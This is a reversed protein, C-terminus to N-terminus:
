GGALMKMGEKSSEELLVLLHRTLVAEWLTGERIITFGLTENTQYCRFRRSQQWIARTRSFGEPLFQNSSELALSLRLDKEM